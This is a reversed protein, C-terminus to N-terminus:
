VEQVEVVELLSVEYLMSRAEKYIGLLVVVYLGLLLLRFRDLGWVTFFTRINKPQADKEDIPPPPIINNGIYRWGTIYYVIYWGRCYM